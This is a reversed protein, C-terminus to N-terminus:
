GPLGGTGALRVADAGVVGEAGREAAAPPLVVDGSVVLRRHHAKFGQPDPERNLIARYLSAVVDDAIYLLGSLGARERRGSENSFKAV